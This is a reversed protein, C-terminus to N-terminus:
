LAASAMLDGAHSVVPKSASVARVSQAFEAIGNAEGGPSDVNLVIGRISQDAAEVSANRTDTCGSGADPQRRSDSFVGTLVHAAAEVRLSKYLRPVGPM